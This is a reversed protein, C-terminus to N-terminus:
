VEKQRKRKKFFVISSVSIVALSTSVIILTATAPILSSDIPQPVTILVTHKSHSYVFYLECTDTFDTVTYELQSGDLYVNLATPDSILEKSITFRVYGKTGTAGSVTFSMEYSTSNFALSSLTSNSEVFFVTEDASETISINKTEFSKAFKADGSYEARLTFEGTATPIWSASYSGESNTTTSTIPQWVQVGPISFFLVIRGNEIPQENYILNGFVHIKYGLQEAEANTSLSIQTPLLPGNQESNDNNETQNSVSIYNVKFSSWGWYGWEAMGTPGTPPRPVDPNPPNGLVIMNPRQQSESKGVFISDVYINYTGNIYTIKYIHEPSSPKFGPVSMQYVVSNFFQVFIITTEPGQDHAWITIIKYNHWNADLSPAGNSLMVGCGLDGICTYQMSLEIEFDGTIPFPNVTSYIFPFSSGNSSLTLSGDTLKVSGGYAPYGSQNTNESVIWKSTDLSTGDFNETFFTNNTQAKSPVLPILALLFLLILGAHKKSLLKMNTM